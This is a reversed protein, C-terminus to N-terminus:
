KHRGARHTTISIGGKDTQAGHATKDAVLITGQLHGHDKALLRKGGKTLRPTLGKSHGASVKFSGSALTVKRTTRKTRPAAPTRIHGSIPDGPDLELVV